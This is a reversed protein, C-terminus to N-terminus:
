VLQNTYNILIFIMIHLVSVIWTLNRRINNYEETYVKAFVNDSELFRLMWFGVLLMLV